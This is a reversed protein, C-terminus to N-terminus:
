STERANQRNTEDTWDPTELAPAFKHLRGLGFNVRGTRWEHLPNATWRNRFDFLKDALQLLHSVKKCGLALSHLSLRAAIDVEGLPSQGGYANDKVRKGSPVLPPM